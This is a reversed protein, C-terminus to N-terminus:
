LPICLCLSENVGRSSTGCHHKGFSQEQDDDDWTQLKGICQESYFYFKHALGQFEKSIAFDRRSSLKM